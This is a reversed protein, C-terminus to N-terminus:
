NCTENHECSACDHEEPEGHNEAAAEVLAAFRADDKLVSLDEDLVMWEADSYGSEVSEELWAFSEDNNGNIAELCALNYTVMSNMSNLTLTAQEGPIDLEAMLTHAELLTEYATDTFTGTEQNFSSSILLTIESIEEPGASALAVFVTLTLLIILKM